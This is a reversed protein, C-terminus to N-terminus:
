PTKGIGKIGDLIDKLLMVVRMAMPNGSASTAMYENVTDIKKQTEKKAEPSEANNLDETLAVKLAGAAQGVRDKNLVSLKEFDKNEGFLAAGVVRRYGEEETDYPSSADWTGLSRQM